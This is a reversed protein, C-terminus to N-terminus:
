LAAEPAANLQALDALKRGQYTWYEYGSV